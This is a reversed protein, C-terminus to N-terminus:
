SFSVTIIFLMGCVPTRYVISINLGDTKITGSFVSGKQKGGSWWACRFLLFMNHICTYKIHMTTLVYKAGDRKPTTKFAIDWITVGTDYSYGLTAALM